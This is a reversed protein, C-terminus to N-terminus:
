SGKTKIQWDVNTRTPPAALKRNDLQLLSLIEEVRVSGAPGVSCQVVIDDDQFNISKLFPRVNITRTTGKADTLRDLNLTKAALLRLAAAKLCDNLYQPRVKLRYTVTRPQFSTGESVCRVSLLQCDRPLQRSLRAIFDERDFPVPTEQLRLSLLDAQTEVGVPRPLPLSLRPRPNFGRSYSVKLGARPCARQFLKVTEAHSLFRLIGHIGFQIALLM